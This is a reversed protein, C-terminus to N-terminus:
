NSKGQIKVTSRHFINIFILNNNLGVKKYKTRYKPLVLYKIRPVKPYKKGEGGYSKILHIVGIKKEIM